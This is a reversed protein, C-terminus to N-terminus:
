DPFQEVMKVALDCFYRDRAPTFTDTAFPTFQLNGCCIEKIPCEACYKGRNKLFNMKMQNIKKRNLDIEDTLDNYKGIIIHEAGKAKSTAYTITMAVNGDPLWVLPISMKRQYMKTLYRKGQPEMQVGYQLGLEYAKKYNDIYEDLQPQKIAFTKADGFDCIPAIKLKTLQHKDCFRVLDIMNTVNDHHITSRIAIQEHAEALTKISNVTHEYIESKLNKNFRLNNQEGDFSIQFDINNNLLRALVKPKIVGNTMLCLESNVDNENIFDISQILADQNLTPEGGFYNIYLPKDLTSDLKSLHARIIAITLSSPMHEHCNSVYNFCYKCHINCLNTLTLWINNCSKVDGFQFPLSKEVEVPNM